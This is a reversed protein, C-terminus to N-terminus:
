RTWGSRNSASEKRSLSGCRLLDGHGDSLEVLAIGKAGKMLPRAREDDGVGPVGSRRADQRADAKRREGRRAAGSGAGVARAVACDGAVLRQRVRAGDDVRGIKRDRRIEFAAEAGGRLVHGLGIELGRGYAEDARRELVGRGSAALVLRQEVDALRGLADGGRRFRCALESEREQEGRASPKRRPL